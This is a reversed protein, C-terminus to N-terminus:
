LAAGGSRAKVEADAKEEEEEDEDDKEEDKGKEGKSAAALAEVAAAEAAAAHCLSPMTTEDTAVLSISRIPIFAPRPSPALKCTRLEKDEKTQVNKIAISNSKSYM